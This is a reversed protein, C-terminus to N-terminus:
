GNNKDDFLDIKEYPYFKVKSEGYSWNEGLVDTVHVYVVDQEPVNNIQNDNLSILCMQELSVSHHVLQPMIVGARRNIKDEYHDLISGTVEVDENALTQIDLLAQILESIKM